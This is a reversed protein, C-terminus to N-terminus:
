FRIITILLEYNAARLHMLVNFFLHLFLSIEDFFGSAVSGIWTASMGQIYIHVFAPSPCFYILFFMVFM